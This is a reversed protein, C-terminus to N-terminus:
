AQPHPSTQQTEMQQKLNAMGAKLIADLRRLFYPLLLRFPHVSRFVFDVDWRLRSRGQGLDEISVRGRHSVLAPQGKFLVYEFARPPEFLTIREHAVTPVGKFSVLRVAGVGNHTTGDQALKVQKVAEIWSPTDEHESIREWVAYQHADIDISVHVSRSVTM